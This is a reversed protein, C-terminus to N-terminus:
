AARPKDAKLASKITTRILEKSYTAVNERAHAACYASGDKLPDNCFTHRGPISADEGVAWKCGTVDLIGVTSTRAPKPAPRIAPLTFGVGVTAVKPQPRQPTWARKPTTHRLLEPSIRQSDSAIRELFTKRPTPTHIGRAIRVRQFKGIAANRSCGLELAIQGFTYGKAVLALLREITEDTWEM